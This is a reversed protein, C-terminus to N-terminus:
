GSNPAHCQGCPRRVVQSKHKEAWMHLLAPIVFYLAIFGVCGTILAGKPGFKNAIAGTDSAWIDKPKLPLKQGVLRGKNWAERKQITEM